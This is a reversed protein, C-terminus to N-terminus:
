FSGPVRSDWTDDEPKPNLKRLFSQNSPDGKPSPAFEFQSPAEVVWGLADGYDDHRGLCPWKKLQDVLIDYGPMNGNLWLRRQGFVGRLGGIRVLKADKSHSTKLWEVPLKQLNTDRAFIDFITQYAEWGLFKELYIINPRHKVIINFLEKAVTWSDFKGHVCDIVFLQGQFTRVVYLVSKDRRENGAYSLDGMVFCPAQLATPFQETHWLTQAGLLEETFTQDGEAIPSNEYQCAFFESGLRIREAELFEVSHGETRGDRCRFKPFLVGKSGPAAEFELSGTIYCPAEIPNSDFDHEIDKAGCNKCLKVWCSKVSIIWPDTGLAKREAEALEQITEYLDGYSYRTGTIYMFGDPALLPCIDRYDQICKALAKLSRYNGDNVLDDVFIVDFHSGAKVSRATSIAMTPEAAMSLPRCPITFESMNGLKPGCFEPFLEIFKRTPREFVRKVRDLQRKALTDGGTVFCVRIGPYNLILQVIEVIIASTKFTGRSWLIMRKKKKLDLDYLPTGINKKLLKEFLWRHPIDQFDMGMVDSSLYLLDTMARTREAFWKEQADESLKNYAEVFSAPFGTMDMAM